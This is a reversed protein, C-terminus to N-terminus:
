ACLPSQMAARAEDSKMRGRFENGLELGEQGGLDHDVSAFGVLQESEGARDIRKDDAGAEGVEVTVRLAIRKEVEEGGALHGAHEIRVREIGESRVAALVEQARVM